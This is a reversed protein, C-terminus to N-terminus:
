DASPERYALPIDRLTVPTQITIGGTWCEGRWSKWLGKPLRITRHSAGKQLVPCVLLGDGLMFQDDTHEFGEGPFVYDVHRVIPEGTQAAHRALALIRGALAAHLQAAEAVLAAHEDGLVRWPSISLQMMGMCASAQAWRVFLEGDLPQSGTFSGIDGGGVMDPCCFAYGLLGQALTNPILALLGDAGWSHLKDQLRTVVRHGGYGWAARFENLAYASGLRNYLRTHERAAIPQCAMDDDRYFYCDGADFKFGDVRATDMLARLEGHLWAFADPHSLDLVASTGNWWERLAVAGHRDRLLYGARRLEQFRPGACSVLPTVWLMVAFGMAHLKRILAKPRPIKRRNFHFVGYDEQWGEDIMLIGPPMGHALLSQAYALIGEETQNTQLEIWTNYQPRSFFRADPMECPFPLISRCAAQYAGRLTSFGEQLRIDQPGACRLRGGEARLAFAGESWLLRGQSSLYLPACADLAMAGCPDLECRSQRGLPMLHGLHAVGGWWCENELIAFTSEQM